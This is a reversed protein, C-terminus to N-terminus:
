AAVDTNTSRKLLTLSGPAVPRIVGSKAFKIKVYHKGTKSNHYGAVVGTSGLKTAAKGDYEITSGFPFDAMQPYDEQVGMLTNLVETKLVDVKKALTTADKSLLDSYATCKRHLMKFQELRSEYTSGRTFNAASLRKVEEAAEEVETELAQKALGSMQKRTAKGDAFALHYLTGFSDRGDNLIGFLQQLKAIVTDDQVFYYGGNDKLAIGGTTKVYRTIMTRLDGSTHLEQYEEFLQSIESNKFNGRFQIEQTRKDYIIISEKSLKIDIKKPDVVERVLGMALVEADNRIKVVRNDEALAELAKKMNRLKRPVAPMWAEGISRDLAKRLNRRSIKYENITWFVAYGLVPLGKVAEEIKKSVRKRPTM